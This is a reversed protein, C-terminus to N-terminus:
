PTPRPSITFECRPNLKDIAHYIHKERIQRDNTLLGCKQICDMLLSVDLDPRQSAYYIVADLAVEGEAICDQPKPRVQCAFLM